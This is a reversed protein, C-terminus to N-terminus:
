VPQGEDGAEEMKEEVEAADGKEETQAVDDGDGAQVESGGAQRKAEDIMGYLEEREEELRRHSGRRRPASAEEFSVPREM